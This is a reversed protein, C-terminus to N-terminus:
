IEVGPPAFGGLLMKVTRGVILLKEGPKPGTPVMTVIVPTFREPAVATENLPMGLAVKLTVFSLVMPALTGPLAVDPGIETVVGSPVAVLM